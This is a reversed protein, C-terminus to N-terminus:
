CFRRLAITVIILWVSATPQSTMACVSSMTM